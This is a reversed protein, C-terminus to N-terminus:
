ATELSNRKTHSYRLLDQLNTVLLELQLLYLDLPLVFMLLAKIYKVFDMYFEQDVESQKLRKITNPLCVEQNKLDRWIITSIKKMALQISVKEFKNIDSLITEMHRIYVDQFSGPFTIKLKELTNKVSASFESKTFHKLKENDGM